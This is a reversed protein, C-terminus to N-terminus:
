PATVRKREEPAPRDSRLSWLPRSTLGLGATKFLHLNAAHMILEDAQMPGQWEHDAPDPSEAATHRFSVGFLCWRVDM